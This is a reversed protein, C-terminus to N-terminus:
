KHRNSEIHTPMLGLSECPTQLEEESTVFTTSKNKMMIFVLVSRCTCVIVVSHVRKM